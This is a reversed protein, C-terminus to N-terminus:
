PGREVLWLTISPVEDPDGPRPYAALRTAQGDVTTLDIGTHPPRDRLIYVQGRTQLTAEIEAAGLNDACTLEYGTPAYFNARRCSDAFMSAIIPTDPQDIKDSLDYMADRLGFGASHIFLRNSETQM